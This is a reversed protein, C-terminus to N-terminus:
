NFASATLIATRVYFNNVTIQKILKYAKLMQLGVNGTQKYSKDKSHM